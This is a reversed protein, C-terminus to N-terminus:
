RQTSYHVCRASRTRASLLRHPPANQASRMSRASPLCAVVDDCLLEGDCVDLADTVPLTDDLTLADDVGDLVTLSVTDSVIVAVLVGDVVADNDPVSV